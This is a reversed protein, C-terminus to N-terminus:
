KVQEEDHVHLEERAYLESEGCAAEKEVEEPLRVPPM